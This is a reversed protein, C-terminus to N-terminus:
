EKDDDDGFDDATTTPEFPTAIPENSLSWGAAKLSEVDADRVDVDDGAKVKRANYICEIPPKMTPM